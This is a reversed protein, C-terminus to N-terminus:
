HSTPLIPVRRDHRWDRITSLIRRYPKPDRGAFRTPPSHPLGIVSPLGLMALFLASVVFAGTFHAVNDPALGDRTYPLSLLYCAVSGLYSLGWALGSIRSLRDPAAILPLYSNYLSTGILHALHAVVFLAIGLAVDGAGVLALMATALCSAVTMAFLLTRRRGTSDAIAGIWPSLVGAALLPLGLAISWLLDTNVRGAAVHSAFYVPFAVGSVLLTYGHAAIDYVIWSVISRRAGVQLSNVSVTM